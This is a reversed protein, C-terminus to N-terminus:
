VNKMVTSHKNIKVIEEKSKSEGWKKRTKIVNKKVRGGSVVFYYNKPLFFIVSLFNRHKGRESSHFIYLIIM